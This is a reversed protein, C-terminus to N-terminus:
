SVRVPMVLETYEENDPQESPMIIAAKSPNSFTMIIDPSHIVNLTELLYFVNFSIVYPEKDYDAENNDLSIFRCDIVEEGEGGIEPNDAKIMMVSNKIEFKVRKTPPDVFISARKLSNTFDLKAVKLQKDNNQPIVTEYNPFTDDVLKSFIEITDTTMKLITEDYEIKVDSSEVLKLILESTKLPVIFKDDKQSENKFEKLIIKGLRFGDTAVLRLDEKRIDFLIGAMNRKIDDEEAAHKVKNIFQKLISGNLAFSNLEGKEEFVPYDEPTEGVLSYKGNTSTINVRNKENTEITLKKKSYMKAALKESKDFLEEIKNKFLENASALDHRGENVYLEQNRGIEEIISEKDELSLFGKHILKQEFNLYRLKDKFINSLKSGENLLDYDPKKFEVDINVAEFKSLLLRTLDLLRKAPIACSGDEKGNVTLKARIFNELDTAHMTLENGELEFLINDLIPLTSRVPIVHSLKSLYNVFNEVSINFKM